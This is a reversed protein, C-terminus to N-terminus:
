SISTAAFALQLLALASVSFSPLRHAMKSFRALLLTVPASIM